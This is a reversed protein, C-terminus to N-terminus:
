AECCYAAYDVARGGRTEPKAAEVGDVFKKVAAAWEEPVEVLVMKRKESM